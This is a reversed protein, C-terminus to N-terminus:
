AKFLNNLFSQNTFLIWMVAAIVIGIGFGVIAAILHKKAEERTDTKEAKAYAIGLKIGFFVGLALVVSFVIPMVIGMVDKFTAMLQATTKKLGQGSDSSLLSSPNSTDGLLARVIKMM